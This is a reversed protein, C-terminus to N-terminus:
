LLDRSVSPLARGPPLAFHGGTPAPRASDPRVRVTEICPLIM